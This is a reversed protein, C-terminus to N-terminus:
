DGDREYLHQLNANCILTCTYTHSSTPANLIFQCWESPSSLWSSSSYLKALRSTFSDRHSKVENDQKCLPCTADVPHQKFRARHAQLNANGTLLRARATAAKVQYTCTGAVQWLSHPTNPHIGVLFLMSLTSYHHIQETLLSFWHNGINDSIYRSWAEKKWPFQLSLTLDIGYIEAIKHVYM